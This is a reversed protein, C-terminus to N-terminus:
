AAGIAYGARKTSPAGSEYSLRIFLWYSRSGARPLVEAPERRKPDTAYRYRVPNKIRSALARIEGSGSRGAAARTDVTELHFSLSVTCVPRSLLVQVVDM